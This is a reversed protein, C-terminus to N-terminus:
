LHFEFGAAPEQGVMGALLRSLVSGVTHPNVGPALLPELEQASWGVWSEEGPSTHVQARVETM